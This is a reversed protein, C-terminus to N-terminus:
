PCTVVTSDTKGDDGMTLRWCNGDPSPLIIGKTSTTMSIDGTVKLAASSVPATGIGVTGSFYADKWKKSANGLDYSDDANPLISSDFTAASVRSVATNVTRKFKAQENLTNYSLTLYIRVLSQGGPNEYKTVQFDNVTVNTDTLPIPSFSGEKLYVIGDELYVQTPSMTSSAMLLSLTSTASGAAMDIFSSDKVLRQVTNNVFYVQDNVENIATQRLNIRTFIILIGVMFVSAAAFIGIYVVLEILSFGETRKKRKIFDM